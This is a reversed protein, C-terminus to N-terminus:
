FNQSRTRIGSSTHSICALDPYATESPDNEFHTIQEPSPPLGTLIISLRRILTKRNAENAPSLGREKLEALIFQDVPHGSQSTTKEGSSPTERIPQFSWWLKRRDRVAEWSTAQDLEEKSPPADRPDMAGSNVWETFDAVTEEDLKAGDKPMTLDSDQHKIARVLLSRKANGPILAKGSRGGKLLGARHDLILDGKSTGRSNHCAYCEQALVPRIRSEFFEVDIIPNETKSIQVSLLLTVITLEAISLGSVKLYNGNFRFLHMWTM